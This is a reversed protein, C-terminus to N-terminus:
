LILICPSYQNDLWSLTNIMDEESVAVCGHTPMSNVHMFFASGAGKVVPDTNYDFAFGYNYNNPYDIMHEASQWDMDDTGEIHQNYYESNPDDVWYTDETVQFYDLGTDVSADFGFATSIGFLGAPTVSEGESAQGVGGMGVFGRVAPMDEPAEWKGGNKQYYTIVASSGGGSDVVILQSGYLSNVSLGSQELANALEDPVATNQPEAPNSTVTENKNSKDADVAVTNDQKKPTSATTAKTATVTTSQTSPAATTQPVTNSSVAKNPKSNMLVIAIAIGIAALVAVCAIIIVTILRKQERSLPQKPSDQMIINNPDNQQTNDRTEENPKKPKGHKPAAYKGSM